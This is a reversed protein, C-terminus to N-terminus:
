EESTESASAEIVTPDKISIHEAIKDDAQLALFRKDFETFSIKLSEYNVSTNVM